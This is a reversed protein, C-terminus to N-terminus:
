GQLAPCGRSIKLGRTGSYHMSKSAENALKRSWSREGSGGNAKHKQEYGKGKNM